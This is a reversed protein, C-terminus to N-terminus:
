RLFPPVVKRGAVAAVAAASRRRAPKTVVNKILGPMGEKGYCECEVQAFMERVNRVPERHWVMVQRRSGATHQPCPPFVRQRGNRRM